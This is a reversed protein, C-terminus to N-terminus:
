LFSNLKVASQNKTRVPKMTYDAFDECVSYLEKQGYPKTVFGEAGSNMATDIDIENTSTTFIFTPIDCYLLNNKLSLLTRIGNLVPMNMDLIICGPLTAGDNLNDLYKLLELGNDFCVLTISDDVKRLMETIIAQDDADDDAYLFYPRNILGASKEM